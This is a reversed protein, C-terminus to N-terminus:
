AALGRRKGARRLVVGLLLPVLTTVAGGGVAEGLDDPNDIVGILLLVWTAIVFALLFNGVIRMWRGSGTLSGSNVPSPPIPVSVTTRSRPAVVIHEPVPSAVRRQRGPLTVEETPRTRGSPAETTSERTSEDLVETGTSSSVSAIPVGREALDKDVM